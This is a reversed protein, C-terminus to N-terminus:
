IAQKRLFYSLQWKLPRVTAGAAADAGLWGALIQRVHEDDRAKIELGNIADTTGTKPVDVDFRKM